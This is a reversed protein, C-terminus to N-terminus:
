LTMHMGHNTTTMENKEKQILYNEYSTELSKRMGWIITAMKSYIYENDKYEDYLKQVEEVIDSM